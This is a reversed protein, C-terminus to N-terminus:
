KFFDFNLDAVQQRGEYFVTLNTRTAYFNKTVKAEIAVNFPTDKALIM